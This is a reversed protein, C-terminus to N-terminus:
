SLEGRVDAAVRVAQLDAGVDRLETDNPTRCCKTPLMLSSVDSLAFAGELSM